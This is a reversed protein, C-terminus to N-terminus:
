HVVSVPDGGLVDHVHRQGPEPVTRLYHGDEDLIWASPEAWLLDLIRGLRAKLDRRTVPALVEVRRRLNRPRWDASGILYDDAGANEFHFIRQHELFRGLISRVRIRESLGPVGPRLACLGRVILDVEVGAVSARYLAGIVEPDELGNIQARIRGRRGAEVHRVEREFRKLLEPLTTSPSVLLRRFAGEPAQTSGTLQNFLDVVDATIEPDSTFFGLDTYFKATTTNYNGTGIHVYRRLGEKTQRVVLAVKAHTKLGVLGYIVQAGAEELRKVGKANHTEDFRAKLEVFAAVDKGRRVAEILSDLIASREGIRYLTMKISVVAPDAAAEDILRAVTSGFDDFPHHVLQDGEDILRFLDPHEAFPQRAAVPPYSQSAPLRNALERLRTLDFWGDIEYFDASGLSVAVGRRELKLEKLLLDRVL